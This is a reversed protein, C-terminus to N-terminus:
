SCKAFQGGIKSLKQMFPVIGFYQLDVFDCRFFNRADRLIRTSPCKIRDSSSSSILAKSSDELITLVGSMDLEELTRNAGLCSELIQGFHM